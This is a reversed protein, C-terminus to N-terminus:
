KSIHGYLLFGFSTCIVFSKGFHCPLFL